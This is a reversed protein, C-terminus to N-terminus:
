AARSDRADAGQARPDPARDFQKRLRDSWFHEHGETWVGIQDCWEEPTLVAGCREYILRHSEFEATESDLIVGDFDFVVAALRHSM